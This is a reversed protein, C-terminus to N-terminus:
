LYGCLSAEPGAIKEFEELDDTTLLERWRGAEARNVTHGEGRIPTNEASTSTVMLEITVPDTPLGVFELIAATTAVPETLLDEYFVRFVRDAFRPEDHLRQGARIADRWIEFQRQRETPPWSAGKAFSSMSVAVDRGDRVMEVVRAEPFTGLIREAWYIHGPTKEVFVDGHTANARRMFQDFVDEVLQDAIVNREGGEDLRRRLIARMEPRTVYWHLGVWPKTRSVTDYRHLVRALAILMPLRQASRSTLVNVIDNYAHSENTAQIRPHRGLLKLLWTTGSRGCGVVFVKPYGRMSRGDVTLTQSRARSGLELVCRISNAGAWLKTKM